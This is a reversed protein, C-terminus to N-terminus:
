ESLSVASSDCTTSLDDVGASGECARSPPNESRVGLKVVRLLVQGECDEHGSIESEHCM